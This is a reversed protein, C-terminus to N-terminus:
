KITEYPGLSKKMSKPSKRFLVRENPKLLAFCNAQKQM